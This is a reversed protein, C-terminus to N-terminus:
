VIRLTGEIFNAPKIYPWEREALEFAQDSDETDFDRSVECREADDGAPAPIAIYYVFTLTFM